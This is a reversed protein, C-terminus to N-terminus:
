GAAVEALESVDSLGRPKEDNVVVEEYKAANNAPSISVQCNEADNNVSACRFGFLASRYPRFLASTRITIALTTGLASVIVELLM